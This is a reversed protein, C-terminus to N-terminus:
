RPNKFEATTLTFSFESGKSVESDVHISTDHRELIFRAIALGIGMGGYAKTSSNDVQYFTEFIRERKDAPIGIGRDKVAIQVKNNQRTVNVDVQDHSFKLANDILLQVAIVLRSKDGMVLPLNAPIHLSIREVNGKHEWSRRLSRIASEIFEKVAVVEFDRTELSENILENLLTINQVGAELRTTARQALEILIASDGVDEALLAVASKVQLLPTRLEHAVNRVIANKLIEIGDASKRQTELEKKLRINEEIHRKQQSRFRIVASLQNELYALRNPSFIFDALEADSPEEDTILILLPQTEHPIIQRLQRFASLSDSGASAAIIADPKNTQILHIADDATAAISSQYNLQGLYAPIDKLWPPCNSTILTIVVPSHGNLHLM